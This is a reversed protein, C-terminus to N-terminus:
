RRGGSERNGSGRRRMTAGYERLLRYTAGYSWDLAARVERVSKGEAYLAVARQGVLDREAGSVRTGRRASTSSTKAPVSREPHDRNIM